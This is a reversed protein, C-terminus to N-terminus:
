GRTTTHPLIAGAARTDAATDILNVMLPTSGTPGKAQARLRYRETRVADRALPTGGEYMSPPMYDNAIRLQEPRWTGTAPDWRELTFGDQPPRDAAPDDDFLIEMQFALRLRTYAHTNGNRLTVTFEQPAGGRVLTIKGGPTATSMSLRTPAPPPKPKSTRAPKPTPTAPTPTPSTPAATSPAPSTAPPESVLPSSRTAPASPSSSSSALTPTPKRATGDGDECSTLLPLLLALAATAAPLRRRGDTTRM